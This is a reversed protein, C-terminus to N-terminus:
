QMFLSYLLNVLFPGFIYMFFLMALFYLNLATIVSAWIIFPKWYMSKWYKRFNLITVILLIFVVISSIYFSISFLPDTMSGTTKYSVKEVVPFSAYSVNTFTTITILFLIIKKM